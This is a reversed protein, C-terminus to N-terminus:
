VQAVNARRKPSSHIFTYIRNTENQLYLCWGYTRPMYGFAYLHITNQISRTVLRLGANQLGGFFDLVITAAKREPQNREMFSGLM